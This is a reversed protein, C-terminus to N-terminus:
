KPAHAASLAKQEPTDGTGHCSSCAATDTGKHGDRSTDLGKGTVGYIGTSSNHCKICFDREKFADWEGTLATFARRDEHGIKDKLSKINKAGHTGHCEACPIHGSDPTNINLSSGDAASIRHKSNSDTYFNKINTVNNKSGDHCRFCLAFDGSNGTATSKRYHLVKYRVVIPDSSDKPVYDKVRRTDSEHCSECLQKDSDYMEPSVGEVAPHNEVVFHDDLLNPNEASWNLHQNHCASCDTATKKVSPDDYAPFHDNKNMNEPTAAVTGDHCAMCYNYTDYEFSPQELKTGGKSDHTRHCNGCTNSNTSVNGHPDNLNHYIVKNDIFKNLDSERETTFKKIVQFTPNGAEDTSITPEVQNKDILLPNVLVYYTTSTKLPSTPTFVVEVNFDDKETIIINGLINEGKSNFVIIPNKITERKIMKEDTILMKISTNIKVNNMDENSILNIIPQEITAVSDSLNVEISSIKPRTNDLTFSYTQTGTNNNLDTAKIIYTFNGDPLGEPLSFSWHWKDGVLQPDTMISTHISNLSSNFLELEFTPKTGSILGDFAVGNISDKNNLISSTNNSITPATTDVTFNLATESVTQSFNQYNATAVITYKYNGDGLDRSFYVVM